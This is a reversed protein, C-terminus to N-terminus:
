CIIMLLNTYLTEGQAKHEKAADIIAQKDLYGKGDAERGHLLVAYTGQAAHPAGADEATYVVVTQLQLADCCRLLRLAIEGRNAILVTKLHQPQFHGRSGTFGKGQM